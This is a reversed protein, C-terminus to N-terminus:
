PGTSRYLLFGSHYRIPEFRRVAKLLGNDLPGGAGERHRSGSPNVVTRVASGRFARRM